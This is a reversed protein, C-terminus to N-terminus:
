LDCFMAICSLSFLGKKSKRERVYVFERSENLNTPEPRVGSAVADEGQRAVLLLAAAARKREARALPLKMCSLIITFFDASTKETEPCTNNIPHELM